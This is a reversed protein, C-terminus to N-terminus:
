KLIEQLLFGAVSVLNLMVLNGMKQKCAQITLLSLGTIALPILLTFAFACMFISGLWGILAVPCIKTVAKKRNVYDIM